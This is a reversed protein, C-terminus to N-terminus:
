IMHIGGIHFLGWTFVEEVLRFCKHRTPSTTLADVRGAPLMKERRMKLGKKTWTNQEPDIRCLQHGVKLLMAPRAVVAFSADDAILTGAFALLTFVQQYTWYIWDMWNTNPKWHEYEPTHTNRGPFESSMGQGEAQFVDLPVSVFLSSNEKRHNM